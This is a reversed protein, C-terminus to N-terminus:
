ESSFIGKLPNTSCCSIKLKDSWKYNKMEEKFNKIKNLKQNVNKKNKTNHVKASSFKRDDPWKIIGNTFLKPVNAGGIVFLKSDDAFM